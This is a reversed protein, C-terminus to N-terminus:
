ELSVEWRNAEANWQGGPDGYGTIAQNFQEWDAKPDKIKIHIEDGYLYAHVQAPDLDCTKLYKYLKTAEDTERNQKDPDPEFRSSPSTEAPIEKAQQLDSSPPNSQNTQNTHTQTQTTTHNPTQMEEASVVGGAVMDSIARNKARTHATAYVDHERHAFNRERSDCIGVGISQRGNPAEVKVKIRWYFSGDERENKEDEQIHDSLGFYVAIKRFGSKKIYKGKGIRQYDDSSLLAKKLAQYQKWEREAQQPSCLPKVTEYPTIQMNEGNRATERENQRQM